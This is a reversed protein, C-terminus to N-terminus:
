PSDEANECPAKEIGYSCFHNPPVMTIHTPADVFCMGGGLLAVQGQVSCYHKCKSCFVVKIEEM